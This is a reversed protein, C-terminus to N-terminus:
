QKLLHGPLLRRDLLWNVRKYEEYPNEISLTGEKASVYDKWQCKICGTESCGAFASCSSCSLGDLNMVSNCKRCYIQKNKDPYNCHPIFRVINVDEETVAADVSNIMSHVWRQLDITGHIVFEEGISSAKFYDKGTVFGYTRNNHYSITVDPACLLDPLKWHNYHCGPKTLVLSSSYSLAMCGPQQNNYSLKQTPLYITNHSNQFEEMFSRLQTSFQKSLYSIDKIIAGIQFYGFVINQEPADEVYRLQHDKTYETQRFWGYFLFIDGVSVRQKNLHKELLGTRPYAPFWELPPSYSDPPLYCGSHCRANMLTDHLDKNLSTAIDYYSIGQYYLDKYSVYGDEMPKPLLLLTGDPLIPSPIGGHTPEFGKRSLIVKM